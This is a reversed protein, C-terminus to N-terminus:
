GMTAQSDESDTSRHVLLSLLQQMEAECEAEFDQMCKEKSCSFGFDIFFVQACQTLFQYTDFVPYSALAAKMVHNLLVYHPPCHATCVALPAVM